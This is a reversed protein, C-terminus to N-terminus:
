FSFTCVVQARFYQPPENAEMSLVYNPRGWVSSIESEM